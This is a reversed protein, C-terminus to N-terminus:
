DSKVPPQGQPGSGNPMPGDRPMGDQKVPPQGQPANGEPINGTGATDNPKVPPQARSANVDPKAAIGTPAKETTNCEGRFLAWEDCTTGNPFICVGYESGDPNKLIKSTGGVKECNVSAPNAMGTSAQSGNVAGATPVTTPVTTTVKAQTTVPTTAPTPTTQTCGSIITCALLCGICVAALLPISLRNDM